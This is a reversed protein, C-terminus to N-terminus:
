YGSHFSPKIFFSSILCIKTIIKARLGLKEFSPITDDLLRISAALNNRQHYVNARIRTGDRLMCGVDLDEGASAKHVQEQDLISFIMDRSEEASPAPELIQLTGYRRIALATGVTIHIDSCHNEKAYRILEELTM